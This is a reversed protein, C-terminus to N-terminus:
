LSLQCGILGNLQYNWYRGGDTTAYVSGRNSSMWGTDEDIFYIRMNGHDLAPSREHSLDGYGQEWTLGGDTTRILKGFGSAWGHFEDTFYISKFSDLDPWDGLEKWTAGGDTTALGGRGQRILRVARDNSDYPEYESIDIAWGRKGDLFHVSRLNLASDKKEVKWTKGGDATALASGGQGWVRGNKKDTFNVAVLGDELDNAQVHWRRGGNTTGLIVGHKERPHTELPDHRIGVIWGHNKDVFRVSKLVLYHEAIENEQHKWERGGNTTALIKGRWGVAWGQNRNLFYVSELSSLEGEESPHQHYWTEGGDDTALIEKSVAWGYKSDIFHFSNVVHLNGPRGDGTSPVIRAGLIEQASDTGVFYFSFGLGAAFLFLLLLVYRRKM